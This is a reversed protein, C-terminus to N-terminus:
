FLLSRIMFIAIMLSFLWAGFSPMMSAAQLLDHLGHAMFHDVVAHVGVSRGAQGIHLAANQSGDQQVAAGGVEDDGAAAGALTGHQGQVAEGAHDAAM